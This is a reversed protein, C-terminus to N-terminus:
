YVTWNMLAEFARPEIQDKYELALEKVYAEKVVYAASAEETTDYAGIRKREETHYLQKMTIVKGILGQSKNYLM